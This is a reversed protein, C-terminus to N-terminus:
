MGIVVLVMLPWSFFWDGFDIPTGWILSYEEVQKTQAYRV